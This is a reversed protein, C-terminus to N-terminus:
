ATGGNALAEDIRMDLGADGGSDENLLSPCEGRVVAALDSLAERIVPIAKLAEAVDSYGAAQALTHYSALLDAAREVTAADTPLKRQRKCFSAFSRMQEILEVVTKDTM